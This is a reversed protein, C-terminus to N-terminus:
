MGDLFDSLDKKMYKWESDGGPSMIKGVGVGDGVALDRVIHSWPGYFWDLNSPYIKLLLWFYM